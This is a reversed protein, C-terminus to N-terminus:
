KFHTLAAGVILAGIVLFIVGQSAEPAGINSADAHADQGAVQTRQPRKSFYNKDTQAVRTKVSIVDAYIQGGGWFIMIVVAIASLNVGSIKLM